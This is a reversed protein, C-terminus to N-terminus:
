GNHRALLLARLCAREETPQVEADRAEIYTTREDYFFLDLVCGKARYQWIAAPSERRIMAPAGLLEEVGEADLDLLQEPDDDVEPELPAAQYSLSALQERETEPTESDSTESQGSKAAVVTSNPGDDARQQRSAAGCASLGLALSILLLVRFVGQM